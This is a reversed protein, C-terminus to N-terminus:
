LKMCLCENRKFIVQARAHPHHPLPRVTTVTPVFKQALSIVGPLLGAAMEGDVDLEKYVTSIFLVVVGIVILYLPNYLVTLFENMGLIAIAAIAWLPPMRNSAARNAEQM